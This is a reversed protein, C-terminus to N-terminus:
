RIRWQNAGLSRIKSTLELMTLTRNFESPQLKSAELLATGDNVGGLMLDLILQEHANGGRVTHVPTLHHDLGLAELVDWLGTVPTAGAKILNNTGVSSPATINGPVAMVDKGQELAFRATHLSGSKLAAETILVADALGAVLRNRAVFNQKYTFSQSPYESVLAGGSALIRDALGRHVAPAITDVPGPLVAITLGKAELAARHALGDIGLALGSVIVIGQEALRSTLDQTVLKGYTTANRSGVIAVMPRQLLQDAAAGAWYLSKPPSAIHRLRDPFQPSSFTLKKINM